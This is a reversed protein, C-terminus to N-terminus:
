QYIVDQSNFQLQLTIVRRPVNSCEGVDDKLSTWINNDNAVCDGVMSTRLMLGAVALRVVGM